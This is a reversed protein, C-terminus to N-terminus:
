FALVVTKDDVGGRIESEWTLRRAKDSMSLTADTMIRLIDTNSLKDSVGDSMLVLVDSNQWEFSSIEADIDVKIGIARTIVSKLRADSKVVLAAHDQTLQELVQGRLRYIRSDGVHFCHLGTGNIWALALTCAMGENGTKSAYEKVEGNATQIARLILDQKVEGSDLQESLIEITRRSALEGAPGGGVGDAVAFLGKDPRAYCADENQNSHKGQASWVVSKM